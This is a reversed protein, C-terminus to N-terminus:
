FLPVLLKDKIMKSFRPPNTITKVVLDVVVGKVVEGVFSGAAIQELQDDSLEDTELAPTTNAETHMEPHMIRERKRTSRKLDMATIGNM